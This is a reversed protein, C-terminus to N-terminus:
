SNRTIRKVRWLALGAYFVWLAVLHLLHGANDRLTGGTQVISQYLTIFPTTPVLASLWQVPQPLAQYPWVYGTILFVPYTSFAMIQAALLQNPFLSGLCVGLPILVLLFLLMGVAMDTVRGRFPIELITYNVTMFFIAYVAFLLLYFAGKGWLAASLNNGGTRLWQPALKKQKELAVSESLGILLTQQLILALLGPLLFAGYAVRENYLPRYDVNVPMTEQMAMTTNLGKTEYYKLRVGAGITLGAQTVVAMLESSPLFRAANVALVINAQKLALISAQLGGPIVLFGQCQGRYMKERADQLNAAGVVSVIQTNNLQETLTRSLQSQDEDVVALPLEEEVKYSYISGYFFAYLLPAILLTLLLSHDGAVLRVERLFLQIIHQFFSKM